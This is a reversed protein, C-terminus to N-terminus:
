AVPRGTGSHVRFEARPPMLFGGLANEDTSQLAWHFGHISDSAGEFRVLFTCFSCHVRMLAGSDCETVRSDDLVQTFM